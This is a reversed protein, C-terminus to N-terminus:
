QIKDVKKGKPSTHVFSDIGEGKLEEVLDQAAKLSTVPGALLRNTEGLESAHVSYNKLLGDAKRAIRRYESKLLDDDAVSAIQVWYRKPHDAKEPKSETKPPEPKAERAITIASLDVAGAAPAVSTRGESAFDAFASSVSTRAAASPATPASNPLAAAQVVPASVSAIAASAPAEASTSNARAADVMESARALDFTRASPTQVPPPPVVLGLAESDAAPPTVRVIERVEASPATLPAQPAAALATVAESAQEAAEEQTLVEVPSASLTPTTAAPVSSAAALAPTSPATTSPAAIAPTQVASVEAAAAVQAIPASFTAVSPAPVVPTEQVVPASITAVSPVPTPPAVSSATQVPASASPAPTVAALAPLELVETPPSATASPVFADASAPTTTTPAAAVQAPADVIPAASPASAAIANGSGTRDPRRRRPDTSARGLPAGQPELRAGAASALASNGTGAAYQAIRPDDRGIEAAKPFIGLNAAAAQQAKTLRPMYELYPAMSAALDRPMVASAIANAEGTEGLIALGFARSRFAAFDRAGVLPKLIIEFDEKNGAIAHSIALRRTVEPGAGRQLALKYSAQADANNGVLDFALGREAAVANSSAGAAEAEAFLRLAEIPRERRLFVAAMGMKVSANNPSLDEARGFFGMAAELDGLALSAKGADTLASLNRSNRALRRLADNLRQVDQSPLAQVVERSVPGSNNQAVAPIGAGACLALVLGLGLSRSRGIARNRNNNRTMVLASKGAFFCLALGGHM